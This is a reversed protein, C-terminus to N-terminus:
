KTEFVERLIETPYSKVFGYKADYENGMPISRQVCIKAAKRGLSIALQLPVRKGIINSYGSITFYDENKTTIKAEIKTLRENQLAIQEAQAQQAKELAIMGQAQAMLIEGATMPKNAEEFRELWEVVRKRVFKSERLLVQKGQAITLEFMPYERGRENKYKSELIKQLSIEEEFEDRIVSLMTDHRLETEKGEEKRFLNIQEVLELSTITKKPTIGQSSLILTNM